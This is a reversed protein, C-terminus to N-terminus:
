EMAEEQCDLNETKKWLGSVSMNGDAQTLAKFCLPLKTKITM